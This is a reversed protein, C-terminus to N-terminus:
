PYRSEILEYVPEPINQLNPNSSSLRGTVAICQNFQGHLYGDKWNMEEYIKPFGEYYTDRLKVLKARDLLTTILEKDGKLLKLTKENTAFFGLKKLESKPLPKFIQPFSVEQKSHKYRTETLGQKAGSKYTHQYPESTKFVIKGGYLLASLHDGSDFNFPYNGFRSYLYDDIGSVDKEIQESRTRAEELNFKLGNWEMEQLGLLDKCHLKILRLKQQEKQLYEMQKHFVEETIILDNICYERLLDEPIDLTDIGKDWYETKIVDMKGPIGYFECTSQLSPLVKEQNQIIYQAVQCDWIQKDKWGVIGVNELWHLDFKINFGVILDAGTIEEEISVKDKHNLPYAYTCKRGHGILVLSNSSDFPNGKNRTTTEVDIVLIKM